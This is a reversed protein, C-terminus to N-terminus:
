KEADMGFYGCLAIFRELPAAGFKEMGRRIEPLTKERMDGSKSFFCDALCILKEEATEPLFDRPPLPLGLAATEAATIGSGTHRECIRACAEIDAGCNDGMSRLMEAGALGHRMYPLVGRCLISPAHCRIIGIDHLLAGSRVLRTDLLSKVNDPSAAAIALAKALVQNCHKLLKERLPPDGTYFFDIIELADM